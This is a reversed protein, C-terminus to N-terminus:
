AHASLDLSRRGIFDIYDVGPLCIELTGETVVDRRRPLIEVDMVVLIVSVVDFVRPEFAVQTVHSVRALFNQPLMHSVSHTGTRFFAGADLAVEAGVVTGCFPAIQFLVAHCLVLCLHFFFPELAGFTFLTYSISFTQFPM